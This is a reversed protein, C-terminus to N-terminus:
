FQQGQCCSQNASTCMRLLCAHPRLGPRRPSFGLTDQGQWRQVGEADLVAPRSPMLGLGPRGKREFLQGLVKGSSCNDLTEFATLPESSSGLNDQGQGWKVGAVDLVASGLLRGSNYLGVNEVALRM